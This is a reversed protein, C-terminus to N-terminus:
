HSLDPSRMKLYAEQDAVQEETFLVDTYGPMPRYPEWGNRRHYHTMAEEHTSAYFVEQLVSDEDRLRDWGESVAACEMSQPGEWIEFRLKAM